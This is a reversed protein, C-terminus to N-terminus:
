ASIRSKVLPDVVDRIARARDAEGRDDSRALTMLQARQENSAKVPSKGAM